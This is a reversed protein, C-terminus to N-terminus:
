RRPEYSHKRAWREVAQDLDPDPPDPLVIKLRVYQDGPAEDQQRGAIGKGKLRLATGTNSHKPVKLTVKGELTPVTVSAGLMAEPLSVPWEIHIDRGKRQFLPHPAIALTVLADGAAGGTGPKGRGKLRLVQGSEAGAPITVDVSKGDALLLRKKAGLAAEVFDVALAYPVDDGRRQTPRRGRGRGFLDAFIDEASVGEGFDFGFPASAGERQRHSSGTRMREAGGADIEGADYRRRKAPDSLLNYAASIEKFQQEVQTNGPNVDPHLKKALRRYARKIEDASVGRELGLVGYPEKMAM